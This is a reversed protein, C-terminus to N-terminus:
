AVATYLAAVFSLVVFFNGLIGPWINENLYQIEEM